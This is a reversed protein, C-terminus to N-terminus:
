GDRHSVVVRDGTLEWVVDTTRMALREDHTVLLLTGEYAVLADELREISPLDLHNTSEDLVVLAVARGLAYALALKRAEGPSPDDSALVRDPDVGLNALTGLM